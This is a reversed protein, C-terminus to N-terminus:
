DAVNKGVVVRNNGALSNSLHGGGNVTRIHPIGPRSAAGRGKGAVESVQVVAVVVEVGVVVDGCIRQQLGAVGVQVVLDVVFCYV